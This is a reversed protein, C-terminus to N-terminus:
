VQHPAKPRDLAVGVGQTPRTQADVFRMQRYGQLWNHTYADIYEQVLPDQPDAFVESNGPVLNRALDAKSISANGKQVPAPTRQQCICDIGNMSNATPAGTALPILPNACESVNHDYRPQDGSVMLSTRQSKTPRETGTESFDEYMFRSRKGFAIPANPVHDATPRQTTVTGGYKSQSQRANVPAMTSKLAPFNKHKDSPGPTQKYASCTSSISSSTTPLARCLPESGTHDQEVLAPGRITPPQQLMTITQNVSMPRESSTGISQTNNVTPYLKTNESMSRNRTSQVPYQSGSSRREHGSQDEAVSYRRREDSPESLPMTSHELKALGRGSSSSGELGPSRTLDHHPGSDALAVAPSSDRPIASTPVTANSALCGPMHTQPLDPDPDLTQMGPSLNTSGARFLSHGSRHPASPNSGTKSHEIGPPQPVRDRYQQAYWALVAKSVNEPIPPPAPCVERVQERPIPATPFYKSKDYYWEPGSEDPDWAPIWGVPCQREIIETIKPAHAKGKSNM